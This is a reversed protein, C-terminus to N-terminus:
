RRMRWHRTMSPTARTQQAMRNLMQDHGSDILANAQKLTLNADQLLSQILGGHFMGLRGLKLGESRHDRGLGELM